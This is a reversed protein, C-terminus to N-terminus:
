RERLRTKNKKYTQIGINVKRNNARKGIYTFTDEYFEPQFRDYEIVKPLFKLDNIIISLTQSSVGENLAYKSFNAKWEEFTESNVKLPFLFICLIFFLKLKNKKM